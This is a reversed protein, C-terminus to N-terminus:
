VEDPNEPTEPYDLDHLEDLENLEPEPVEMETRFAEIWSSYLEGADGDRWADSRDDFYAQAEDAIETMSENYSEIASRLDDLAAQCEAIIENAREAAETYAARKEEVYTQAADIKTRHEKKLKKM